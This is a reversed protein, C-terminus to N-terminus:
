WQALLKIHISRRSSLKSSNTQNWGTAPPRRSPPIRTRVLAARLYSQADGMQILGLTIVGGAILVNQVQHPNNRAWDVGARVAPLMRLVGLYLLGMIVLVQLGRLMWM